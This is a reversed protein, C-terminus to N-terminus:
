DSLGLFVPAGTLKSVVDVNEGDQNAAAAIRLGLANLAVAGGESWVIAM